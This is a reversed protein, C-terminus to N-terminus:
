HQASSSSDASDLEVGLEGPKYAVDEYWRTHEWHPEVYEVIQQATPEITKLLPQPFMGILFCLLAIPVLVILERNSLDQLKENEPNRIPGFMMKQYLMLMYIAGLIVGTAALSAWVISAGMLGTLILLEGVFGNLGPLGISSLTFIMFFIAFLPMTKALGGFDSILRTHRREYIIGVILFLGGTSLGHNIMQIIGGQIGQLNWALIGALLIGMHSVSSYAVLRKVDKQIMAILAGYILGIISLLMLLPTFELVAAPFFPVAFRLFGYVGTKLLIGALIVSGATPAETHAYPLWTHFPFLPMKILFALVFAFFLWKQTAPDLSVKTFEEFSFTLIGGLQQNVAFYLYFIVLLMLASGFSTFLFFKIGAYIRDKGGWIGIIFYMPVLMLEWFLFFLFMDLAIFTGLMGTELMLMFFYFLKERKQIYEFSALISITSLLTTLVVLVLSMGDIGIRYDIGLAPVWPNTVTLHFGPEGYPFVMMLPLCLVLPVLSIVFAIRKHAGTFGDPVILLFLAGLIPIFTILTLLM